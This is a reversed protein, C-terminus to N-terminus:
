SISPVNYMNIDNATTPKIIKPAYLAVISIFSLPSNFM